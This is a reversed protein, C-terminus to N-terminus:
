VNQPNRSAVGAFTLVVNSESLLFASQLKTAIVSFVTLLSASHMELSSCPLLKFAGMMCFHSFSFTLFINIVRIQDNGLAHTFGFM